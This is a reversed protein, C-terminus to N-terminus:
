NRGQGLAHDLWPSPMSLRRQHEADAAFDFIEERMALLRIMRERSTVYVFDNLGVFVM